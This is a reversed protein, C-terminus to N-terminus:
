KRESRNLEFNMVQKRRKGKKTIKPSIKQTRRTRPIKPLICLGELKQGALACRRTLYIDLSEYEDDWGNFHVKHLRGDVRSITAECILRPDTIDASEHKM